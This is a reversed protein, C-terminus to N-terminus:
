LSSGTTDFVYYKVKFHGVLGQKADQCNMMKHVIKQKMQHVDTHLRNM